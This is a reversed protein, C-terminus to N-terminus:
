KILATMFCLTTLLFFALAYLFSLLDVQLLSQSLYLLSFDSVCCWVLHEISEFHMSTFDTGFQKAGSRLNEEPVKKWLYGEQYISSILYCWLADIDVVLWGIIELSTGRSPIPAFLQSGWKKWLYIKRRPPKRRVVKHSCDYLVIDHDGKKGLPPLSKCRLKFAPHSTFVLDILDPALCNPVSKVDMCKSDISCIHVTKLFPM